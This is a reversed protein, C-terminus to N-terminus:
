KGSIWGKIAFAGVPRKSKFMSYSINPNSYGKLLVSSLGKFSSDINRLGGKLRLKYLTKQATLRRSIRGKVELKIGGMNKYNINNFIKNQINTNNLNKTYKSRKLFYLNNYTNMFFKNLNEKNLISVLNVDRYKNELLNLDKFKKVNAREVIANIKPLKIRNVITNMGKILSFKKKELKKSLANTFIDTNYIYYKTNIINYEIKINFIKLLLSNLKHLFYAKDFKFKNLKYLYIDKRILDIKNKLINKLYSKFFPNYFHIFSNLFELQCYKNMKNLSKIKSDKFLKFFYIFIKPMKNKIKNLLMKAKLYKKQLIYKEPNLTYLTIIAKNPSYKIEINSVYIKRLFSRRKKSFISKYHIFKNKFHLNFFYKIIRNVLITKQPTNKTKNKDFFYSTNNWEKSVPPLYKIKRLDSKKINFATYKYKNNLNNDFIRLM